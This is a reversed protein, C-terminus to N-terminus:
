KSKGEFYKAVEAFAGEASEQSCFVPSVDPKMGAEFCLRAFAFATEVDDFTVGYPVRKGPKTVIVEVLNRSM